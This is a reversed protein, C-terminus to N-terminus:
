CFTTITMHSYSPTESYVDNNDKSNYNDDDDYEQMYEQHNWDFHQQTTSQQCYAQQQFQMQIM